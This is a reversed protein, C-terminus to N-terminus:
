GAPSGSSDVGLLLKLIEDIKEKAGTFFWLSSIDTIASQGTSGGIPQSQFELEGFGGIGGDDNYIFASAGSGGPQHAPEDPYLASPNNHFNRVMLQYTEDALWNLYAMRGVISSASYGVKYQRDGTIQAIACQPLITHVHSDVPQYYDVVKVHSFTPTLISGGPNLQVVSWVNSIIDDQKDESLTIEQEYGAYIVGEPMTAINDRDMLPNRAQRLVRTLRLNKKGVALNFADLTMTQDLKWGGWGDQSLSYSGPDMPSQVVEKVNGGDLGREVICYQIEPGIWLRDGGVNWDDSAYFREFDKKNRFAANLWSSSEKNSFFPGLIRGGYQSIIIRANNQLAVDAFPIDQESLRDIVQHYTIHNNM